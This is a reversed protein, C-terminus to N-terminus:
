RLQVVKTTLVTDGVRVSVFYLGGHSTAGHADHGDWDVRHRGAPLPGSQLTCVLRGFVDYVAVRVHSPAPLVFQVATTRLFPNPSAIIRTFDLGPAPAVDVLSDVAALTVLPQGCIDEYVANGDLDGSLVIEHILFTEFEDMQATFHVAASDMAAITLTGTAPTGPPLGNLRVIAGATDGVSSVDTLRYRMVHSGGDTNYVRLACYKLSNLPMAELAGNLGYWDHARTVTGGCQFCQGTTDNLVTTTFCFSDGCNMAAIIAHLPISTSHHAAVTATGSNPTFSLGNVSCPAVSWHYRQATAGNNSIVLYPYAYGSSWSAAYSLYCKERCKGGLGALAIRTITLSDVCRRALELEDVEGIFDAQGDVNRQGIFLPGTNSVSGSPVGTTFTGRLMGDTYLKVTGTGGSPRNVTAAVFHWSGDNLAPGTWFNAWTGSGMGIGFKGEYLYLAYGTGSTARKDLFCQVVAGAPMTTRIWADITFSGAGFDLLPLPQEVRVYNDGGPFHIAHGVKGADVWTPSGVFAGTYGGALDHSLSGTNEDFTYWAVTRRPPATCTDPRDDRCQWNEFDYGALDDNDMQVDYSPNGTNVWGPVNSETIAYPGAPLQIFSYSGNALTTASGSTAGGLDITWGGLAPEGQQHIGDHNLDDYKTGRLSGGCNHVGPTGLLVDDAYVGATCSGTLTACICFRALGADDTTVQATKHVPDVVVGAPQQPCFEVPCAGFDIVVSSGAMPTNTSDRVIVDFCCSDSPSPTILRPLTSHGPSPRRGVLAPIDGFSTAAEIVISDGPALMRCSWELAAGNDQCDTAITNPLPAIGGINSWVASFGEADYRDAAPPAVPILLIHTTHPVSCTVGGVSNGIKFPVGMDSCALYIDAGLYLDFSQQLGTTNTIALRHRFFNDQNRYTVVQTLRLGTVGADCVITVTYPNGTSGDGTGSSLSVPTWPTPSISSTATGWEHMAFNPGYLEAPCTGTPPDTTCPTRLFVGMDAPSHGRNYPAADYIQDCEPAITRHYVSFSHEEGVNIEALPSSGTGVIRVFNIAATRPTGGMVKKVSTGHLVGHSEAVRRTGLPIGDAYIIAFCSGSDTACICFHAVGAANTIALATKGVPDVTVGAPQQPCFEVRCVSFDIVVNSGAIPSGATDRVTVDFCCNGDLWVTVRPPLTCNAPSPVPSQAAARAPALLAGSALLLVSLLMVSRRIRVPASM